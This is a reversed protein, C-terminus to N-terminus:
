RLLLWATVAVAIGIGLAERGTISRPTAAAVWAFSGKGQSLNTGTITMVYQVTEAPLPRKEDLFERVRMPGANYAAVALPWSQFRKYLDSLYHMGMDINKWPDSSDVVNATGPMLQMIGRAGKYSTLIRGSSDYQRIGSEVTALTMALYPSIGYRDEAETIWERYQAQNNLM